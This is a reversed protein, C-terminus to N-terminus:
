EHSNNSVVDCFFFFMGRDALDFVGRGATKVGSGYM